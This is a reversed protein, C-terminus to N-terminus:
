SNVGVIAGSVTAEADILASPGLVVDQKAELDIFYGGTAAKAHIQGNMLLVGDDAWMFFFTYDTSATTGTARFLATSDIVINGSRAWLRFESPVTGALSQGIMEGSVFINGRPESADIGVM